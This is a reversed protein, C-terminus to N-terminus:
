QAVSKRHELWARWKVTMRFLLALIFMGSGVVGIHYLSSDSLRGSYTLLYIFWIYHIGFIHIRKWNKGLKRMSWNNSTIAMVYIMLYALGGGLITAIDPPMGAITLYYTLAALHVSHTWAFALGWQRRYQMLARTLGNKSLRLFTSALYAILFIPAGVRSTWRAALKAGELHDAGATFGLGVAGISLVFGAFLPALSSNLFTM